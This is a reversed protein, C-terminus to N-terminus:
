TLAPQNTEINISRPEEEEYVCLFLAFVIVLDTSVKFWVIFNLLLLLWFLKKKDPSIAICSQAMKAVFFSFAVLGTLGFYFIFRLYGVDTGMYFGKWHYGNYYPDSMPNAFYADGILWTKLTEPFRYMDQLVNNSHVEWTGEEWLSFFGEFGFRIYSRMDSNHSYFYVVVPIMFMSFIAFIKWIRGMLMKNSSNFFTTYGWYGLGMLVGVTTTRAIMNGVVAIIGFSAMYLFLRQNTQKPSHVCIYCIILEIAAFRTGAVDVAAGIGYLREREAFEAATGMGSMPGITSNVISKITPVFDIALALICQLVCVAILYNCVIFIDAKGHVESILSIVIYASSLWVWFSFLYTSYAYDQTNNYVVSFCAIITVIGALLSLTFVNRDLLSNGKKALRMSLVALGIIALVKKTNYGPLFLFEFSFFYFSTIIVTFTISLYKNVTFINM